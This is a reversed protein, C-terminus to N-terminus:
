RNVRKLVYGRLWHGDPGLLSAPLFLSAGTAAIAALVMLAGETWFSLAWQESIANAAAFGIMLLIAACSAPQVCSLIDSVKMRGAHLTIVLNILIFIWYAACIGAAAGVLGFRLGMLTGVFVLVLLLVETSVHVWMRGMAMLLANNVQFISRPAICMALLAFPFAAAGWQDGLVLMIIHEAMFFCPLMVITSTYLVVTMTKRYGVTLRDPDDQVLSLIPFLVRRFAGNARRTQGNTLKLARSYVGLEEAGLSRSVLVTDVEQRVRSVVSALSSLSGYGLLARLSARHIGFSLIPPYYLSLVLLSVLAEAITAAVLAWTGWGALALPIVVLSYGALSSVAQAAAVRKFSLSKEARARSLAMLGRVLFLVSAAQVFPALGELQFFREIEGASIFVIVGLSASLLVACTQATVLDDHKLDQRQIIAQAMGIQSVVMSFSVIVTVAAMLGFEAPTIIRAIIALTGLRVLGSFASSAFTWSTGSIMRETLNSRSPTQVSTEQSM